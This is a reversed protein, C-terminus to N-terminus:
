RKRKIVMEKIQQKEFTNMVFLYMLIGYFATFLTCRAILSLWQIKEVNWDIMRGIFGMAIAVFFIPLLERWFQGIRLGVKNAYYRNMILGPGIVIAISTSVAAGIIGYKKVLIITMIINVLSIFFMCKARFAYQDIAQLIALGSGQVIDITYPIMLLLAVWYAQIYSDGVWLKIFTRGFAFFGSVVLAMVMGQVRGIKRFLLDASQIGESQVKYIMTPLVVGGIGNALSMYMNFLQAGVSYIAVATTGNIKGIIIQDTKWFIQDAVAAMFVGISFLAIEKLINDKIEKHQKIKVHLKNKAYWYQLFAVAINLAVQVLVIIVAYPFRKIAAIVAVPQIVLAFINLLKLFVFKQHAAICALYTYNNISILLNVVLGAYMILMEALEDALLSGSYFHYICYGAPFALILVIISLAHFLRRTIFLLNEMRNQDKQALYVSYHRLITASFMTELITIYAIISSVIQYLGYETQGIGNLLIPVYVVGIISQLAIQIYGLIAGAKRENMTNIM